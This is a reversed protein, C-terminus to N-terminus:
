SAKEEFLDTTKCYLNSAMRGVLKLQSPKLKGDAWLEDEIHAMIVEGFVVSRIGQEEPMQIINILRCELSVKAEAIRPSKVKEGSVATLGVEKIEDVELPFGVSTQVAQKILNEDVVNIVFDHSYEINELTDKKQGERAGYAQGYLACSFCLIPPKSCLPAVMSFPAANYIGTRSVTSILSVPLPAISSTLLDHCAQKELKSMEIKM